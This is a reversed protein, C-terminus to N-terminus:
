CFSGASRGGARGVAQMGPQLERFWSHLWLAGASVILVACALGLLYVGFPTTPPRKSAWRAFFWAPSVLLVAGLAYAWWWRRAQEALDTTLWLCFFLAALSLPVVISWFARAQASGAEGGSEKGALGRHVFFNAFLFLAIALLASALPPVNYPAAGM